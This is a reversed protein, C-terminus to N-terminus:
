CLEVPSNAHHATLQEKSPNSERMFEALALLMWAQSWRMYSTRVTGVRLVRYYFYGREDWMNQLAWELVSSALRVNEPDLDRFALLTIISQAVCHIDLPYTRDHFYRAAGDRFFHAKYFDFGRRISGEFEETGLDCSISQLACLNYGTHFNDVWQQSPAESYPWSGDSRQKAVSYRAAKLAPGLFKEQGTYTYARCLLAAALLNANHVHSRAGPLPYCFGAVEDGESWFLEELIYEAASAAMELYQAQQRREYLDFLAGAVFMTCVLNPAARPVLITRTQWPFSYGWCWYQRDPSRLAVLSEALEAVCDEKEDICLEPAKLLASLFLAIGKPNQTKPVQLLGRLNIPSRKLLQTLVLRPVRSQLAPFAMFVKSNLADYPDYGAWDNERCYAFLKRATTEVDRSCGSNTTMPTFTM